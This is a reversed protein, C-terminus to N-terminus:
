PRDGSRRGDASDLRDHELAEIIPRDAEPMPLTSLDGADAWRLPQGELGQPTGRWRDVQFFRLRVTLEPYRHTLSRWLCASEVVIGLEERLERALAAQLSEGSERKGGPFEWTGALHKGPLRQALLVRGRDDRLVGAVVEIRASAAHAEAAM